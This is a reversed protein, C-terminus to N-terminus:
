YFLLEELIKQLPLNTLDGNIEMYIYIYIYIYLFNPIGSRSCQQCFRQRLGAVTVAPAKSHIECVKHRRHYRKADTLDAGCKEAQCRAPSVGGSSATSGGRKGSLPPAGARKRENQDGFSIMEGGGQDEEDLYEDDIDDEVFTRKGEVLSKTSEM